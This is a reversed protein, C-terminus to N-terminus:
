FRWQVQARLARRSTGHLANLGSGITRPRAYTTIGYKVAVTLAAWPAYQAMVYSRRGEDFFVPVSFSYRLDREYAYIRAAFGDTDFFSLGVDV